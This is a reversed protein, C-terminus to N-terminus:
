LRTYSFPRAPEEVTVQDASQTASSSTTVVNITGGFEAAITPHNRLFRRLEEKFEKETRHGESMEARGLEIINVFESVDPLSTSLLEDLNAVLWHEFKELYLQDSIYKFVQDYFNSLLTDRGKM